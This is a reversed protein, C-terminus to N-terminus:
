EIKHLVADLMRVAHDLPIMDFCFFQMQERPLLTKAWRKSM